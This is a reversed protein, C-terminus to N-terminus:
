QACVNIYVSITNDGTNAVVLDPLGDGNLDGVAVSAPGKGTPFLLPAAFGGDTGHLLVGLRNQSPATYVLDALNDADVDAAALFAPLTGSAVQTEVGCGGDVAQQQHILIQGDTTPFALDVLGDGDFDGAAIWVPTAGLPYSVSPVYAGGDGPNALIEFTAPAPNAVALSQIGSTDFDAAAVFFAGPPAAISRVPDFGGDGRAVAVQPSPGGLVLDPIGDLNVDTVALMSSTAGLGVVGGDSYLVATINGGVALDARGDFDFDAAVLSTPTAFLARDIRTGLGGAHDNFFLGVGNTETVAVDLFGDQDFDGMAVMSPSALTGRTQHLAFSRACSSSPTVTIPNSFPGTGGAVVAAVTVSYTVGNSLGAALLSTEATHFAQPTGSAPTAVVTYGTVNPPSQTWRALLFRDGAHAEILVPANLAACDPAACSGADFTGSAASTCGALVLAISLLRHM